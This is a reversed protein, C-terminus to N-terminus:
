DALLMMAPVLLTLTLHQVMHVLYLYEESIDHVPWDSAAWLLLIGAAFWRKQSRTIPPTGAPVAKPGIVKGAYAYLGVVSGVLLWVEPHPVWRFFDVSAAATIM